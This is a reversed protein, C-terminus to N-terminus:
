QGLKGVHINDFHASFLDNSAKWAELVLSFQDQRLATADAPRNLGMFQGDLFFRFAMTEPEVEIRIHHWTGWDVVIGESEYSYSAEPTWTGGPCVLTSKKQAVLEQNGWDWIGCDVNWTTELNAEDDGHLAFLRFRATGNGYVPDVLIDAEFFMPETIFFRKYETAYLVTSHGSGQGRLDIAGDRLFSMQQSATDQAEWKAPNPFRGNEAFDDYLTAAKNAALEAQQPLAGVHINDIYATFTGDENGQWADFNLGFTAQRLAAVNDPRNSGAFEGNLFYSFTMTEPEVEIRIHHWVGLAVVFSESQYPYNGTKPDFAGALCILKGQKQAALDANAQIGCDVVWVDADNVLNSKFLRFRMLGDNVEPDIMVDAEFFMPETLTFDLYQSAILMTGGDSAQATQGHLELVGDRQLTFQSSGSDGRKWKRSNFAPGEGSFDDYLTQPDDPALTFFAFNAPLSRAEQADNSNNATLGVYQPTIGHELQGLLVWNEGDESYFGAYINGRKRLKLYTHSSNFSARPTGQVVAGGQEKDLFVGSGPCTPGDCFGRNLLIFNDEDAFILIAAQQFNQVPAFDVETIIEFDGAPAPRYLLNDPTSDGYLSAGSTLIQLSDPATDLSWNAAIEHQWQWDADLQGAFNDTFSTTKALHALQNQLDLCPQYTSDLELCAAIDTQAADADGLRRWTEARAAYLAPDAEPEIQVATNLDAIAGDLQGMERRALGRLYYATMNERDRLLFQEAIAIAAGFDNNHFAAFGDDLTTTPQTNSATQSVATKTAAPEASTIAPQGVRQWILFGMLTLLLSGAVLWPWVRRRTSTTPPQHSPTPPEIVTEEVIPAAPAPAAVATEQEKQQGNMEEIAEALRNAAKSVAKAAEALQTAVATATDPREERRRAMAQAVIEDYLSPVDPRHDRLHPLPETMQKVIIMAPSTASFPRKGTLMEFVMVGLAYIDSRGDVENGQIQEPSMYGPTGVAQSTATITEGAGAQRAIGFDSLYPEGYQDFLVNSPKLDRHVIGRKHAEDLAAGIRGVIYAVDQVPLTGEKILRQALTGGPMLRMVLFPRGGEEGFDYVPVIAPHELTAILRAEREFRRRFSPDQLFDRSLLKVAVHRGFQPDVAQYVVAMGGSGIESEIEYRGIKQLGNM